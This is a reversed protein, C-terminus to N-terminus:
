GIFRATPSLKYNSLAHAVSSSLTKRTTHVHPVHYNMIFLIETSHINWVVLAPIICASYRTEFVSRWLESPWLILNQIRSSHLNFYKSINSQPIAFTVSLKRFTNSWRSAYGALRSSDIEEISLYAWTFERGRVDSICIMRPIECSSYLSDNKLYYFFYFFLCTLPRGYIVDREPPPPPPDLSTHCNTVPPPDVHHSTM